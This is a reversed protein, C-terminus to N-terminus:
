NKWPCMDNPFRNIAIEPANDIGYHIYNHTDLSVTILYEPNLLLDSSNQIDDVSLPNMHHVIVNGAIECGDIGLDCGKDRVIVFDRVQKWERSRYFQQNIYRDFGFTDDGVVGPLKLYEKREKFTKLKILESYCKM